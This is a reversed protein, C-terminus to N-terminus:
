AALALVDKAVTAADVSRICNITGEDLMEHQMKNRHMIAVMNAHSGARFVNPEPDLVWLQSYDRYSRPESSVLNEPKYFSDISEYEGYYHPKPQATKYTVTLQIGLQDLIEVINKFTPNGNESLMRYLNERNLGTMEAVKTMGRVKAIDGIAALFLEIEGDELVDKLYEIAYSEDAFKNELYEDLDVAYPKGEKDMKYTTM